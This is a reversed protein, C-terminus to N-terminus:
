TPIILLPIEIRARVINNAVSGLRWGLAHTYGYTGLIILDCDASKAYELIREAPKGKKMVAEVDLGKERLSNTVEDLYHEVIAGINQEVQEVVSPIKMLAPRLPPIVRIIIVKAKHKQAVDIVYPLVKEATESGDLPVLIKKFM